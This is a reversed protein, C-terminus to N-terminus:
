IGERVDWYTLNADEKGKYKEAMIKHINKPEALAHYTDWRM